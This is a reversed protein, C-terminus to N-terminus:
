GECTPYKSRVKQNFLWFLNNVEETLNNWINTEVTVFNEKFIIPEITNMIDDRTDKQLLARRRSIKDESLGEDDRVM